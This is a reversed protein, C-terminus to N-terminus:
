LRRRFLVRDEGPGDWAVHVIAPPAVTGIELDSETIDASAGHESNVETVPVVDFGIKRHFKISNVNIPSTVCHVLTCGRVKAAEFFTDYLLRGVGSGRHAPDVGAFHVHAQTVFPFLDPDLM